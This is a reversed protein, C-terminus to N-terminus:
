VVELQGQEKEYVTFSGLDRRRGAGRMRRDGGGGGGGRHLLPVKAAGEWNETM